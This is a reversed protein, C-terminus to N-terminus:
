NEQVQISNSCMDLIMFVGKVTIGYIKGNSHQILRGYTSYYEPQEVGFRMEKYDSGDANASILTSYGNDGGYTAAYFKQAFATNSGTILIVLIITFQFSLCRHTIKSQLFALMHLPNHNLSSPASFLSRLSIQSFIIGVFRQRCGVLRALQLNLAYLMREAFFV